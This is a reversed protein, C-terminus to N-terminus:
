PHAPYDVFVKKTIAQDKVKITIEPLKKNSTNIQFDAVETLIKSDKTLCISNDTASCSPRDKLKSIEIKNSNLCYTKKTPENPLLVRRWLTKDKLFYVVNIMAPDLHGFCDNEVSSSTLILDKHKDKLHSSLLPRKIVLTQSNTEFKTEVDNKGQPATPTFSEDAIEANISLDEAITDLASLIEQRQYNAKSLQLITTTIFVISTVLGTLTALVIPAVIIIESVTFGQQLNKRIKNSM